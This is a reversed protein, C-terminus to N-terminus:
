KPEYIEKIVLKPPATVVGELAAAAKERIADGAELAAEKSQWLTISSYERQDESVMYMASVFGKLSKTFAYMADAIAEIAERKEPVSEFSFIRAYM